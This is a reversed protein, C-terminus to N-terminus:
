ENLFKTLENIMEEIPKVRDKIGSQMIPNMTKILDQERATREKKTSINDFLRFILTINDNEINAKDFGLYGEGKSIEYLHAACRVLVFVSEGVYLLNEKDDKKAYIGYVGAGIAEVLREDFFKVKIKM